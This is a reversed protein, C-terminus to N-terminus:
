VTANKLLLKYARQIDFDKVGRLYTGSIFPAAHDGHFFTPMFGNRKEGKDILSKIVDITVDPSLMALLVLKNRYTDWFSPNTYYRFGPNIVKRDADVFEGNVDSRLAPWLFSRYLSSYFLKKQRETGGTVKIKSLHKEWIANAEGKIEDFSKSAIEAKLNQEANDTSVFSLAIKIELPGSGREFHVVPIDRRGNELTEIRTIKHNVQAYFNVTDGTRQYGKFAYDGDQEIDWRRVGENSVALNVILKEVQDAPYTYKHYGCRLTSTLEVNIGYRDLMVQYYGPHATENDHSFSSAFDRPSIDGTVPLLPIHCLNWHGKNTHTFGLIESDEYEYGAGSRFETIPSLQVMANPLSTGPFVLGAWVRWDRPPTYGIENPDTLPATGLFPNVYSTLPTQAQTTTLLFTVVIGSLLHKKM